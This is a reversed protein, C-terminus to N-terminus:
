NDQKRITIIGKSIGEVVLDVVNRVNLKEMLHRRHTNVTNPSVCLEKAIDQTSKGESLCKLVDLERLTLGNKEIKEQIELQRSVREM